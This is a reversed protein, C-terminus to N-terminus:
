KRFVIMVIKIIIILININTLTNQNNFIIEDYINNIYKSLSILSFYKQYLITM